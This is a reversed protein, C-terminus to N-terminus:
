FDKAALSEIPAFDDTLLRGSNYDVTQVKGFVLASEQNVAKAKSVTAENLPKTSALLLLNQPLASAKASDVKFVASDPFVKLYTKDIADLMGSRPGNVASIINVAVVGGPVLSARIREVAQESFLQFPPTINSFADVFIMGYKKQNQNLYQRGDSTIIKLNATPQLGFYQKSITQLQGDIEVTDVGVGPNSAALHAPLSFAGGGIVLYDKGAPSLRSAYDFARIYDFALGPRGDLYVGSQWAGPDTSLIRTPRGDLYRNFVQVRSYSTDIDSQLGFTHIKPPFIITFGALWILTIQVVLFRWRSMLYSCAVLIIVLMSLINRTGLLEFLLYGTLFVGALSGLAGAANIRAIRRGSSSLGSLSLRALYPSVAGLAITPLAFLVLSAILSQWKTGLSNGGIHFLLWDKTINVIFIATAASLLLLAIDDSSKRKDAIYGGLAYGIALSALIVGIISTWTYVTTGIYPAIIRVAVLEFTLVVFGVVFSVLELKYKNINQLKSM